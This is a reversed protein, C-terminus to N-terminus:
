GLDGFVPDVIAVTGAMHLPQGSVLDSVNGTFVRMALGSDVNKHLFFIRGTAPCYWGRIDAINQIEGNIIRCNSAGPAGPGGQTTISLTETSGNVQLTWTTRALNAPRAASVTGAALVTAALTLSLISKMDPLSRISESEFGGDVM